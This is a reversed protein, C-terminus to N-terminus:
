NQGQPELEREIELATELWAQAEDWTMSLADAM